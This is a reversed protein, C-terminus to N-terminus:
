DWIVILVSCPAHEILSKSISGQWWRETWSRRRKHGVVILDAHSSKAVKAIEDVADGVAHHGRAELGAVRLREVGADLVARIRAAETNEAQADYVWVEGTLSTMVPTSVAVLIIQAHSWQGIEQGDLLAHQGSASGDYALVITKYM